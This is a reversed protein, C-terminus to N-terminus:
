KGVVLAEAHRDNSVWTSTAHMHRMIVDNSVYKTLADAVNDYTGVKHIEIEREMVKDQVWLQM